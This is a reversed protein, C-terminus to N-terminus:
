RTGFRSSPSKPAFELNWLLGFVGFTNECHYEDNDTEPFYGIKDKSFHAM